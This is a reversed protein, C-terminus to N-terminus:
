WASHEDVSIYSVEKAIELWSTGSPARMTIGRAVSVTNKHLKWIISGSPSVAIQKAHVKLKRWKLGPGSLAAMHVHFTKSDVCWIHKGSIAVSEIGSVPIAFEMWTNAFPATAVANDDEPSGLQHRPQFSSSGTSPTEDRQTNGPYEISDQISTSPTPPTVPTAASSYSGYKSYIDDQDSESNQPRLKQLSQSHTDGAADEKNMTPSESSPPDTGSVSSKAIAASAQEDLNMGTAKAISRSVSDVERCSDPICSPEKMEYNVTQIDGKMALDVMDAVTISDKGDPVCDPDTTKLPLDLSLATRSGVGVEIETGSLPQSFGVTVGQSLGDAKGQSVQETGDCENGLSDKSSSSTVDTLDPSAGIQPSSRFSNYSLADGIFDAELSDRSTQSAIDAERAPSSVSIYIEIVLHM